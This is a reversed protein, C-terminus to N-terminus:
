NNTLKFTYSNDQETLEVEEGNEIKQKLINIKELLSKQEILMEKVKKTLNNSIDNQFLDKSM